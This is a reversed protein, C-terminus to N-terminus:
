SEDEEDTGYTDKLGACFAAADDADMEFVVTFPCLLCTYRIAVKKDGEEYGEVMLSFTGNGCKCRAQM